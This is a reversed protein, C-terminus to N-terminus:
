QERPARGPGRLLIRPPPRGSRGRRRVRGRREGRTTARGGRTRPPGRVRGRRDPLRRPPEEPPPPPRGRPPALLAARRGRLLARVRGRRRPLAPLRGRPGPGAHRPAGHR